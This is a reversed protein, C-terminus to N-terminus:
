IREEWISRFKNMPLFTAHKQKQLWIMIEKFNLGAKEGTGKVIKEQHDEPIALGIKTLEIFEWPHLYFTIVRKKSIQNQKNLLHEIKQKTDKAGITRWSPWLDSRGPEPILPDASVPLELLNLTGKKIWNSKSPHYPLLQTKHHALPYSSDVLYGFQNLTNILFTNGLLYPARFTVPRNGLKKEIANTAKEVQFCIEKEDMFSLAEHDFSHCGLEHGSKQIRQFLDRHDDIFCGLINFTCRIDLQDLIDLILPIGTKVGDSTQSFPEADHEVDFGILVYTEAM